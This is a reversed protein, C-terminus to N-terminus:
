EGQFGQGNCWDLNPYVGRSHSYFKEGTTKSVKEKMPVNHTPCPKTPVEPKPPFKSYSQSLPTFNKTIFHTEMAEMKYLLDKSSDSRMTFLYEFGKESKVKVTASAAAEPLGKTPQLEPKDEM